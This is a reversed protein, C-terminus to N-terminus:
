GTARLLRLTKRADAEIGGGAIFAMVADETWRLTRTSLKIAPLKGGRALRYVAQTNTQLLRAVDRATLLTQSTPPAAAERASLIREILGTLEKIHERQM